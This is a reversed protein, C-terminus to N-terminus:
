GAASANGQASRRWETPAMGFRSSFVRSLASASGYGVDLAIAQVSHGQLLKSKALGLRWDSLYAGPIMGVVKHFHDALLVIGMGGVAVSDVIRYSGVSM